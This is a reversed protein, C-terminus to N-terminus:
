QAMLICCNSLPILLVIIRTNVSNNPKKREPLKFIWVGVSITISYILIWISQETWKKLFENDIFFFTLWVSSFSYVTLIFKKEWIQNNSKQYAQILWFVLMAPISLLLGAAIMIGILEWSLIIDYLKSENIIIGLIFAILFPSVIATFLWIKLTYKM